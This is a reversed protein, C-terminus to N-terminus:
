DAGVVIGAGRVLQETLASLRAVESKVVEPLCESHDVVGIRTDSGNQPFVSVDSDADLSLSAKNMLERSMDALKHLACTAAEVELQAAELQLKEIALDGISIDGIRQQALAYLKRLDNADEKMEEKMKKLEKEKGDLRGRVTRLEENKITLAREVALLEMEKMRLSEITLKLETELQRKQMSFEDKPTELLQKLSTHGMNDFARMANSNEDKISFVLKNTLEVIREAVTEAESFKLKADNLEDQMMQVDEDKEKLMTTAQILQNERSNMLMKLEGIEENLDELKTRANLLELDKEELILQLAAQESKLHQIELKADV